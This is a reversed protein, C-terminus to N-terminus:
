VDHEAAARRFQRVLLEPLEAKRPPEEGVQRQRRGRAPPVGGGAHQAVVALDAVGIRQRDIEGLALAQDALIREVRQLLLVLYSAAAPGRQRRKGIMQKRSKM